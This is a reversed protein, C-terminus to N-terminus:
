NLWKNKVEYKKIFQVSLQVMYTATGEADAAYLAGNQASIREKEPEDGFTPALGLVSQRQAWHQFDMLWEANEAALTDDGPAKAFVFYLALNYQCTVAANGMIDRRRAIEALGAPFMGGNAPSQGTYDIQFDQLTGYGPFTKIWERISELPTM